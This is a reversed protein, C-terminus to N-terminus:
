KQIWSLSGKKSNDYGFRKHKAEPGFNLLLGVEYTTAKMYTLIQAEHEKLIMKASKLELIVKGEVIMDAFFEGVVQGEYYVLIQAQQVVHLGMKRLEIVLANEYVKESFGYGLMNYVVFFAGIIKETVDTHKFNAYM